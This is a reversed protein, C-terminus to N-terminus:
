DEEDDDDDPDSMTSAVYVQEGPPPNKPAHAAVVECGLCTVRAIEFEGANDQDHTHFVSQGCGSCLSDEYIQLAEIALLDRDGWEHPRGFM